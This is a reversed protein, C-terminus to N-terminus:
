TAASHRPNSAADRQGPGVPCARGPSCARSPTGCVWWPLCCCPQWCSGRCGPTGPSCSPSCALLARAVAWSLNFAAVYRGRLTDPAAEVVLAIVGAHVMVAVTYLVTVGSLCSSPRAPCCRHLQWSCSPAWGSCHALMLAPGGIHRERVLSTQAVALLATYVAYLVGLRALPAGLVQIAYVPFGVLIMTRAIGFVLNSAVIWCYPRDALVARFGKRGAEVFSAAIVTRKPTRLSAILLTALAFSVANGVTLAHYGVIGLSSVALGALLGGLGLGAARLAVTLGFWRDRSGLRRVRRNLSAPGGLVAPREGLGPPRRRDAHRPRSRASVWSAWLALPTTAVAVTKPGVRDVLAGAALPAPVAILMAITLGLGAETLSLGGAQHFYLLSFPLFLRLRGRRHDDGARVPPGHRDATTRAAGQGREPRSWGPIIAATSNGADNLGRQLLLHALDAALLGRVEEAESCGLAELCCRPRWTAQATEFDGAPRGRGAAM